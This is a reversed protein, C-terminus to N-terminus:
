TGGISSVTTISVATGSLTLHKKYLRLIQNKECTVNQSLVKIDPVNLDEPKVDKCPKEKLLDFYNVEVWVVGPVQQIIGEIRYVHETGGFEQRSIDFLGKSNNIGNVQGAVGLAQKISEEINEKLFTSDFGYNVDIYVHQFFGQYVVVPFRGLGHLNDYRVIKNKIYDFTQDQDYKLVTLAVCPLKENADMGGWEASVKAIEGGGITMTETEFDELSVIRGLGQIKGPATEKANDGNEAQKGGCIDTFLQIKDIGDINTGLQVTTGDQLPGSAGIGTKYKISVNNLGSPLRAGTKGDGFQVWSDGGSDERVVYIQENYERGFFSDVKEWLRDNVYVQLEPVQPPTQDSHFLYTLPSKPIKFTQFKQRADGSGLIEDQEIKGQNAEVLNGYVKSISADNPFLDYDIEHTLVIKYPLTSTDISYVANVIPTPDVNPNNQPPVIILQKNKELGDLLGKDGYFLLMTGRQHTFDDVEKPTIQFQEGIVEHISIDRIDATKDFTSAINQDLSVVSTSGTLVGWTMSTSRIKTIRRYSTLNQYGNLFNTYEAYIHSKQLGTGSTKTVDSPFSLAPHLMQQVQVLLSNGVVLNDIQQDLPFDTAAIPDSFGNNTNSSINRTFDVPIQKGTPPSENPNIMYPPSNHGFHRFSRGLKFAVTGKTFTVLAGKIKFIQHGKTSQYVDDVLVIQDYTLETNGNTLNPYGVMLRDGKKLTYVTPSSVHFETLDASTKAPMYLDFENLGPYVIVENSTTFESQQAVGELHAKIQAGKPIVVKKDGKVKVVFTGKGGVGPSLRYGLIRVLDAISERWTATRLYKENAYLEQYFTLIDGLISVGELLAIAPDDPERYTWNSFNPDANLKKFLARRFDSYAGIRYDIHSLGSRNYLPKPFVFPDSCDNPCIEPSSM